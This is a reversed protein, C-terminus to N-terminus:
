TAYCVRHIRRKTVECVEDMFIAPSLSDLQVAATGYTDCLRNQTSYFHRKLGILRDHRLQEQLYWRYRM